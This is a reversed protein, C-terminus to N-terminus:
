DLARRPIPFIKIKFVTQQQRITDALMGMNHSV